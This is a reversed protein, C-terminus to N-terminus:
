SRNDKSILSSSDTAIANPLVLNLVLALLAGTSIGSELIGKLFSPLQSLAEPNFTVGLGAGIAVALIVMSRNTMDITRLINFGAVAVTGAMLMVAGGFVPMPITRLVGGVIPFLGLLALIAGVYYGIFRSGVGTLQIIGNNQALSVVPFSSFVAAILSNFGDGLIGGQLRRLFTHGEIPENTVISTATIDGIVELSVAVYIISFAVFSSWDFALGFRLPIPVNIIPLNSISSLDVIGFCIAVLCGTILGILISGMRLIKNSSASCFAVIAFVLGSLAWNELSGYTGSQKAIAGGAMYDFSVKVLTLGILTVATGTVLPTFIKQTLHLFRSLIMPIFSGFFCLGLILSLAEQPTKGQDLYSAAIALMPTVFAFSTGQISLLGSGISGVTKAQIFTAIGSVLLSMSLIYSTTVADLNLATCVLFGPTIVPIFIACVHQIAVFLAEKFPPRDNLGYVLPHSSRSDPAIPM